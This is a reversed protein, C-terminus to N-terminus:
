CFFLVKLPRFLTKGMQALIFNVCDRYSNDFAIQWATNDAIDKLELNPNANIILEIMRINGYYCATM